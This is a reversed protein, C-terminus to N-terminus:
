CVLGDVTQAGHNARGVVVQLLAQCVQGAGLWCKLKVPSIYSQFEAEMQRPALIELGSHLLFDISGDAIQGRRSRIQLRRQIATLVTIEKM